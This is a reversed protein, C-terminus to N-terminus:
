RHRIASIKTTILRTPRGARNRPRDAAARRARAPPASFSCRRQRRGVLRLRQARKTSPSRQYLKRWRGRRDDRRRRAATCRTRARRARPRAACGTRGPWARGARRRSQRRGPDAAAAGLVQEAGVVLAAVDQRRDDVARADRQEHAERRHQQRDHDADAQAQQRAEDAARDVRKMMRTASTCATTGPSGSRAASRRRRRARQERLACSDSAKATSTSAIASVPQTCYARVTRPEVSTSRLLSYTCAARTM